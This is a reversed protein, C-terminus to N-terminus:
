SKEFAYEGIELLSSPFILKHIKKNNSSCNARIYNIGDPIVCVGDDNILDDCLENLWFGNELLSISSLNLGLSNGRGYYIKLYEDAEKYIEPTEKGESEFINFYGNNVITYPRKKRGM